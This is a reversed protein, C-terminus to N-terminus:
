SGVEHVRRRFGGGSLHAQEVQRGEQGLLAGHLVGDVNHLLDEDADAEEEKNRELGSNLSVFACM